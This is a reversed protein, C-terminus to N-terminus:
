RGFAQSSLDFFLEPTTPCEHVIKSLLDLIESPREIVRLFFRWVPIALGLEELLLETLVRTVGYCKKLLM